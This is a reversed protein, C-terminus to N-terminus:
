PALRLAFIPISMEHVRLQARSSISAQSGGWGHAQLYAATGGRGCGADLLEQGADKPLDAMALEIAEEEGAHAYNGQRVLALLQKGLYSNMTFSTTM